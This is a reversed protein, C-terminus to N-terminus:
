QYNVKMGKSKENAMWKSQKGANIVSIAWLTALKPNDAIADSIQPFAKDNIQFVGRDVSDVGGHQAADTLSTSATGDKFNYNRANAKLTGENLGLKLLYNTYSPAIADAVAKITGATQLQVPDTVPIPEEKKDGQLIKDSQYSLSTLPSAQVDIPLKDLTTTAGDQLTVLPLGNESFEINSIDKPQYTQTPTKAYVTTGLIKDPLNSAVKVATNAFTTLNKLATGADNKFVQSGTNLYDKFLSTPSEKPAMQSLVSPIQQKSQQEHAEVLPLVSADQQTNPNTFIPM